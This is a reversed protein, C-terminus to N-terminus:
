RPTALKNGTIIEARFLMDSSQLLKNTLDNRLETHTNLYNRVADAAEKSQYEGLTADLWGKPFFIDGTRQMEELLELSEKVYKISAQARLPHNLYRQADLVWPEHTRNSQNKLSEFFSDREKINSSVAPMIFRLEAIRDPNTTKELQMKLLDEYGKPERIALELVLQIRDRESLKFGIANEDEWFQKLNMIARPTTAVNRYCNFLVRKLSIDKESKIQGYLMNDLQANFANREAPLLFQWFIRGTKDTLYELLLPNKEKPISEIMKTLVIHPEVQGHLLYEWINMWISARDVPDGFANVRALMEKRSREDTTFFGYGMGKINPIVILNSADAIPVIGPRNKGIYALTRSELDNSQVYYNFFQPWVKGLSDNSVTVELRKPDKVKFAIEPMGKSKIWATNWVELDQPTHKKMVAILDDWTANGYAYTKLYEKLGEQFNKEGMLSELNRMTVPAKQYIIAGYVSGANKLNDLEQQVPHSGATRDVDYASPFHSMLFRLDHNVQPFGPNVIKGAMFNAFVEKLWVDNFWTMTVLNGFWMHATEHAILGARRLEDNVSASPELFLSSERYYINGPHEMGGFQFAPMLAFEFKEYPYDIGTYEKLWALSQRHLAFIKKVNAAVKVSDTERYFMKLSSETDSAVKFKGATFAFQYTSTPKTSRFVVHKRDGATTTTVISGNSMAEWAIPIDLELNYIAKIDPQDFVPFCTAARAPVFLAYLYDENRNLAAEGAILKIRVNNAGEHLYEPDIIVHENEWHPATEKDNVTVIKINSAPANFDLQLPSLNRKLDFAINVEGAISDTKLLPIALALDYRVNQIVARRETALERSTGAIIQKKEAKHTCGVALTLCYIVIALFQVAKRARDKQQM